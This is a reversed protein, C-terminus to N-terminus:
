EVLTDPEDQGSVRKSPPLKDLDGLIDTPKGGAHKKPGPPLERRLDHLMKGPLAVTDGGPGDALEDLSKSEINEGLRGAQATEDETDDVADHMGSQVRALMADDPRPVFVTKAGAEYDPEPPPSKDLGGTRRKMLKRTKRPKFAQESSVGHRPAPARASDSDIDIEDDGQLSASAAGFVAEGEDDDQADGPSGFNVDRSSAEAGLSKVVEEGSLSDDSASEALGTDDDFDLDNLIDSPKTGPSIGIKPEIEPEDVITQPGDKLGAAPISPSAAEDEAERQRQREEIEGRDLKVTPMKPARGSEEEDMPMEGQIPPPPRFAEPAPAPTPVPIPSVKRGPGGRPPEIYRGQEDFEASPMPAASAGQNRTVRVTPKRTTQKLRGSERKEWPAEVIGSDRRKRTGAVAEQRNTQDSADGTFDDLKVEPPPEAPGEGVPVATEFDVVTPETAARRKRVNTRVLGRPQSSGPPDVAEPPADDDCYTISADGIRLRTGDLLPSFVQPKARQNNVYTGSSSGLDRCWAFGKSDIFLQAHLRSVKMDRLQVDSRPLRGFVYDIRGVFRLLLLDPGLKIELYPM